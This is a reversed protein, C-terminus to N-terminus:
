NLYSLQHLIISALRATRNDLDYHPNLEAIDMSILKGSKSIASFVETAIDPSFGLPSPASVGPAYASSFGDLDITLYIADVRYIFASIKILINEINKIQFEEIPIYQVGLDHARAFCSKTNSQKQIGLCLYHFARGAAKAEEAIQFFATGSNAGNKASRLDFHADLNIVGITSARLHNQIGRLHGYSIDHGGGLLIPFYNKDLLKEVIEELHTLCKTNGADILSTNADFHNTLSGAIKRIADPGAAAGSRGQNRRVGEDSAYGLLAIGKQDDPLKKLEDNELDVCRLIQHWYSRADPDGRGTWLNYETPRYIKTESIDASPDSRTESNM